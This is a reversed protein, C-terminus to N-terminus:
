EEGVLRERTVVVGREMLEEIADDGYGLERLVEGSHQGLTPPAGHVSAPTGSLRVPPSPMRLTGLVPHEVDTMLGNAVAHPHEFIEETFHM